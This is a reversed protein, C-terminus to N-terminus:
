GCACRAWGPTATASTWKWNGPPNPRIASRKRSPRTRSRPTAWNISPAPLREALTRALRRETETEVPLEGDPAAARAGFRYDLIGLLLGRDFHSGLQWDDLAHWQWRLEDAAPLQQRLADIRFGAHYRRNLERELFDDNRGCPAPM